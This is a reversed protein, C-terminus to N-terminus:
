SLAKISHLRVSGLALEFGTHAWGIYVSYSELFLCVCVYIEHTNHVGGTM